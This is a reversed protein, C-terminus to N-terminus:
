RIVQWRKRHRLLLEEDSASLSHDREPIDVKKEVGGWLRTSFYRQGSDNVTTIITGLEPHATALKLAAAVNCGSSVGSLVGEELALRRAMQVAEESSVIVLGDVMDLDLIGPIFGDGIGQIEHPGWGGGSLIACEEADVRGGCQDWIEPGTTEDHMALNNMNTFQNPYFYKGPEAAMMQEIKRLSLDQDSEAGPTFVLQAGFARILMKREDSMGEPMVVTVPFGLLRGVMACATGANGTSCEIITMGQKLEGSRLAATLMKKYIRDKHSGTPNMYELKAAIVPSVGHGIRTLKLLPTQGIADLVSSLM